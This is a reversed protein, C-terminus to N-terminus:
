ASTRQPQWHGRSVASIFWEHLPIVDCVAEKKFSCLVKLTAILLSWASKEIPGISAPFCHFMLFERPVQLENSLSFFKWFYFHFISVLHSLHYFLFIVVQLGVSSSISLNNEPPLFIIRSPVESICFSILLETETDWLYVCVCVCACLEWLCVYVYHKYLPYIYQYM